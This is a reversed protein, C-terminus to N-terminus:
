GPRVGPNGATCSPRGGQAANVKAKGAQTARAHAVPSPTHNPPLEMGPQAGSPYPQPLCYTYPHQLKSLVQTATTEARTM